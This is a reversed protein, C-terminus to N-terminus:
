RIWRTKLNGPMVQPKSDTRDQHTTWHQGINDWHNSTFDTFNLEQPEVSSVKIWRTFPSWCSKLISTKRHFCHVFHFNNAYKKVVQLYLYTHPINVFQKSITKVTTMNLTNTRTQPHRPNRMQCSWKTQHNKSLVHALVVRVFWTQRVSEHCMPRQM